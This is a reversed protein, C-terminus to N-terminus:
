FILTLCGYIMILLCWLSIVIYYDKLPTKFYGSGTLVCKHMPSLLYGCFELVFLYSLYEIGLINTLVVTIGAFKTSSGLCFSATFAILSLLVFSELENINLQTTLYKIFNTIETGFTKIINSLLIVIFLTVILKWKIHKIPNITTTIIMYYLVFIPFVYYPPYVVILGVAIILPFINKIFDLFNFQKNSSTPLNFDDEKIFIFIYYFLFLLSILLIPWTYKLVGVWSLCLGAMLITITPELPSWLYYHHTALYDLIGLKERKKAGVNSTLVDLIGASVVVRGPIPLVGSIASIITILLRKSKINNLLFNYINNFLNNEKILGTIIMICILYLLYFQEKSFILDLM